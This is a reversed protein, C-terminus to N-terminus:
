NLVEASPRRPTHGREPGAHGLRFPQQPVLGRAPWLQALEERVERVQVLQSMPQLSLGHATATLHVREFLQGVKLHTERGDDRSCILGLVPASRLLECDREGVRAGANLRAVAFGAIKSLPWPTGFVGRGVWEGLERRFAPDAFEVADARRVLGELAAKTEADDTLLLELGDEVRCAAVRRLTHAAVPAPDFVRRSTRRRTIADFLEPARFPSPRGAPEFRVRAVLSPTSPDPLYEVAHGYGFHEAAVLLNELACGASIHLERQDADAVRLWGDADAYVAVASEDEVAFRWPQTNHSSAALVAYGLLFRLRERPSGARPFDDESVGWPSDHTFGLRM